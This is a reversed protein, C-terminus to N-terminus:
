TSRFFTDNTFCHKQFRTSMLIRAEKIWPFTIKLKMEMGIIEFLQPLFVKPNVGRGGGGARGPSPSITKAFLTFIGFSIILPNKNHCFHSLRLHM